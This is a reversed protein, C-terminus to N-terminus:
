VNGLQQQAEEDTLIIDSGVDLYAHRALKPNFCYLLTKGGHAKFATETGGNAPVWRDANARVANSFEVMQRSIDPLELCM